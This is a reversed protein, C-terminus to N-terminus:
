APRLPCPATATRARRSRGKSRRRATADSTRRPPRDRRRRCSRAPGASRPARRRGNAPPTGGRRGSSTLGRWRRSTSSAGAQEGLALDAAGRQQLGLRLGIVPRAGAREVAGGVGILHQHFDHAQMQGARGEDIRIRRQAVRQGFGAHAARHIQGRLAIGIVGIPWITSSRATTFPTTPKCAVPPEVLWVIWRIAIAAAAPMASLQSSKASRASTTGNSVRM